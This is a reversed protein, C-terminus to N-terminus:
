NKHNKKINSMKILDKIDIFCNNAECSPGILGTKKLFFLTTDWRILDMEGVGKDKKMKESNIKLLAKLRLLITGNDVSSIEGVKRLEEAAKEPYKMAYEWGKRTAEVFKIITEPNENIMKESTFVVQGYPDVGYELPYTIRFNLGLKKAKIPEWNIYVPIVDVKGKILDELGDDNINRFDINEYKLGVIEAVTKFLFKPEKEGLQGIKVGSFDTFEKINGGEKFMWAVPPFELDISVAKISVGNCRSAALNVASEVGFHGDGSAILSINDIREGGTKFTVNLNNNKYYNLSNALLEGAYMESIPGNLRVVLLGEKKLESEAQKYTKHGFYCLAFTIFM